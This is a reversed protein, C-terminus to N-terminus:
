AKRRRYTKVEETKPQDDPLRHRKSHDTPKYRKGFHQLAAQLENPDANMLNSLTSDGSRSELFDVMADLLDEDLDM